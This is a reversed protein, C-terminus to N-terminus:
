RTNRSRNLANLILESFSDTVNGSLDIIGSLNYFDNVVNQNINEQITERREPVNNSSDNIRQSTFFESSANSNYERIDYRCVPCRCNSRFWNMIHDTHFTHGCHRIVTVMDTDSFDDMSIPCSTNIPRAIDCYRVRRTAAEIQSQTPYIEVPQLFNDFISRSYGDFINYRNNRNTSNNPRENNRPITYEGILYSLGISNTLTNYDTNNSEQRRNENRRQGRNLLQVLITRIQNNSNNLNNLMETLNTIQRLNDNYMTNLINVLFLTENSTRFANSNNM